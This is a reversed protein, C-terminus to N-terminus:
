YIKLCFINYVVIGFIRNKINSQILSLETLEYDLNSM